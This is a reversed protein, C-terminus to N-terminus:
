VFLLVCVYGTCDVELYSKGPHGSNAGHQGADQRSWGRSALHGPNKSYM